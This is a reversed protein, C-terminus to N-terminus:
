LRSCGRSTLPATPSVVDVLLGGGVSNRPGRLRTKEARGMVCHCSIGLGCKRPDCICGAQSAFPHPFYELHCVERRPAGPSLHGHWPAAPARQSQRPPTVPTRAGAETALGRSPPPPVTPFSAM